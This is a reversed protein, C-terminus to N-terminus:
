WVGHLTHLKSAPAKGNALRVFGRVRPPEGEPFENRLEPFLKDEPWRYDIADQGVLRFPPTPGVWQTYELMVVQRSDPLRLGWGAITAPARGVNRATIIVVPRTRGDPYGVFGRSLSVKVRAGTFSWSIVQWTLSVVALVLGALAIWFAATTM